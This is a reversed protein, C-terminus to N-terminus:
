KRRGREQTVSFGNENIQAAIDDWAMEASTDGTARGYKMTEMAIVPLGILVSHLTKPKGAAYDQLIRHADWDFHESGRVAEELEGFAKTVAPSFHVKIDRADVEAAKRAHSM